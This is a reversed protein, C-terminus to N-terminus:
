VFMENLYAKKLNQLKDLKYQQLAITKDLTKFFLGIKIQEDMSPLMIPTENVQQITYHSITGIHSITSIYKRFFPTIFFTYLFYGNIIESNKLWILDADKFYLPETDSVLYPIGVSGGGTVLVDDLKVKGSILALKEYLDPSIFAKQNVTGNYAAMIDSSRFFRVGSITWENKHVRAASSIDILKGLKYREWDGTYEKFRRKPKKNSEDPFMESLYAVKLSKMKKLECKHLNINEDLIKFFVGIKKQEQTKSITIKFEELFDKQVHPINPTRYKKYILEQQRKLSQYVFNSDASTRYAKLTSGLAGTFGTYVTGAKSGDWLIVIDQENVDVTGNTLLPSGGNLRSTDLYEVNGEGLESLKAKGKIQKEVIEGLKCREWADTNKFEKFRRKPVLKNENM